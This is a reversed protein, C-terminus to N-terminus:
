ISTPTRYQVPYPLRTLGLSTILPRWKTEIGLNITSHTNWVSNCFIVDPVVVVTDDLQKYLECARGLYHRNSWLLCCCSLLVAILLIVVWWIDYEYLLVPLRRHWYRNM